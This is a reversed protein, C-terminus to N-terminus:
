PRRAVLITQDHNKANAALEREQPSAPLTAVATSNPTWVEFLFYEEGYKHFVLKGNAPPRLTTNPITRINVASAGSEPRMTLIGSAVLGSQVAYIGSPMATRGVHFSFPINVTLRTSDQAHISAAPMAAFISLILFRNTM